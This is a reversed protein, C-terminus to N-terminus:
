IEIGCEDLFDKICAINIGENRYSMDNSRPEIEGGKSHIGIFNWNSDFIAAGSSGPLTNTLYQLIKDDAYKLSNYGICIQKAMANAHQIIPICDNLKPKGVVVSPLKKFYEENDIKLLKTIAIDYKDSIYTNKYDLTCKFKKSKITDEFDFWALSDKMIEKYPIVHRNTVIYEDNILFGTAKCYIEDLEKVELLCIRKKMDMGKELFPISHFKHSRNIIERYKGITLKEGTEKSEKWDIISNKIFLDEPYLNFTSNINICASILEGVKNKRKCAMCLERALEVKNSCSFIEYDGMVEICINKLEDLSFKSICEKILEPIKIEDMTEKGGNILQYHLNCYFITKECLIDKEFSINYTSEKLKTLYQKDSCVKNIVMMISYLIHGSTSNLIINRNDNIYNMVYERFKNLIGCKEFVYLADYSINSIKNYTLGISNFLKIIDLNVNTEYGLNYLFVRNRYEPYVLGCKNSIANAIYYQRNSEVILKEQIKSDYPSNIVNYAITARSIENEIVYENLKNSIIKNAKFYNQINESLVKTVDGGSRMFPKAINDLQKAISYTQPIQFDLLQLEGPLNIFHGNESLRTKFYQSFVNDFDNFQRTSLKILGISKEEKLDFLIKSKNFLEMSLTSQWLNASTIYIPNGVFLCLKLLYELDNINYNYTVQIFPDTFPFFIANKLDNTKMKISKAM